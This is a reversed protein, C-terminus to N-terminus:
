NFHIWKSFTNKLFIYKNPFHIEQFFMYVEKQINKEPKFKELENDMIFWKNNKVPITKTMCRKSFLSDWEIKSLNFLM